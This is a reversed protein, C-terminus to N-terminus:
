QIDGPYTVYDLVLGSAPATQGSLRRDKQSLLKEISTELYGRGIDILTGTISRVMKYIFRNAEITFVYLDDQRDLSAHMINCIMNDSGCGSACFSSFDHTGSLQRINENVCDWNVDYFVMWARKFLLPRKRMCLYYKYCRRVATFRAHFTDDVRCVNYVAISPPILANISLEFKRLDLEVPSDFHAGQGLAHVGADTRGAGTVEIPTRLLIALADELKEQVSIQNPQRQWGGFETGDYEIRFFYRM